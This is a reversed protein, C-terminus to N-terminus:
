PACSPKIKKKKYFMGAKEQEVDRNEGNRREKRARERRRALPLPLSLCVPLCVSPTVDTGSLLSISPSFWLRPSFRVGGWM